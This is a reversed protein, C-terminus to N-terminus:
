LLALRADIEKAALKSWQGIVQPVDPNRSLRKLRRNLEKLALTTGFFGEAIEQIGDPLVGALQEGVKIIPDFNFAFMAAVAAPLDQLSNWIESIQRFSERLISASFTWGTLQDELIRVVPLALDNLVLSANPSAKLSEQLLEPPIAEFIRVLSDVSWKDASM